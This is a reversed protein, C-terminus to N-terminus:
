AVDNLFFRILDMYNGLIPASACLCYVRFVFRCVKSSLLVAMNFNNVFVLSFAVIVVPFYATGSNM